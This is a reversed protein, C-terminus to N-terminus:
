STVDDGLCVFPSFEDVKNGGTAKYAYTDDPIPIGGGRAFFRYTTMDNVFEVHISSEVTLQTRLAVAYFAPNILALDGQVGLTPQLDNVVVPYGLLSFTPAGSLDRLFTVLTNSGLTLGFLEEIVRRSCSWYSGAGHLHRSWCKFVDGSTVSQSTERNVVLLAANNAHLAGLPQGTGSGTVTMMENMANMVQGGVLRAVTPTLDGTMDDALIEDGIKSIAAWKYVTLLRQLFVPELEDKAGGEGIIGVNAIGAMPRTNTGDTQVVYPIRLSRGTVPYRQGRQLLGIQTVDTQFISPEQQLPLLFEGGSADNATGIIEGRVEFDERGFTSLALKKGRQIANRQASSLGSYASRNTVARIYPNIGGFARITDKSWEAYKNVAAQTEPDKSEPAAQKLLEDGGQAAIEHEPTFGALAAARTELSKIGEVTAEVEDKTMQVTSDSLKARLKDAEARFEAAAGNKPQLAM